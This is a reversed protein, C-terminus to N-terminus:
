VFPSLAIGALAGCAIVWASNVEYKWLAVFSAVAVVTTFADVIARGALFVTVGAMLGLASATVGDLLASTLAWARLRQALPGIAASLAFSPLFIASTAVLAGPLGAVVYGVFTATTFVPGPTLQGIAIADLLQSETLWGLHEVFESRMLALLVYGSGYLVAGIKLFAVFLRDLGVDPGAAALQVGVPLALAARPILLRSSAVIGGGILLILENVGLLYLGAALAGIAALLPTSFAKRGLSILAQVVIAIVVPKIGYLVAEATPTRGYTAYSWALGLVIVGAPVIFSLGAMVLGMGGAVDRGLLMAMETSSPGPILNTMGLYDLFRQESVWRRRQVVERHMMSIHAAPGGFATASLRAFLWVITRLSPRRQIL